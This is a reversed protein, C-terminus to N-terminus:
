KLKKMAKRALEFVRERERADLIAFVLVIATFTCWLLTVLSSSWFGLGMSAAGACFLVVALSLPLTTKLLVNMIERYERQSYVAMWKVGFMLSGGAMSALNAFLLGKLGYLPTWWYVLAVYLVMEWILSVKVKRLEKFIVLSHVFVYHIIFRVPIFGLLILPLGTLTMEKGVWLTIIFDGWLLYGGCALLSLVVSLKTVLKWWKYFDDLKSESVLRMLVPEAAGPIRQLIQTITNILKLNVALIATVGLSLLNGSFILLSNGLVVTYITGVAVDLGLKFIVKVNEAKVEAWHFKRSLGSRRSYHRIYYSKFATTSVVAIVYSWLGFGLKICSVFIVLDLLAGVIAIINVLHLRQGALMATAHVSLVYNFATIVGMACFVQTGLTSLYGELNYLVGIFPAIAGVALLIVGGQLLFVFVASSWMQAYKEEDKVRVDVLLRVCAARVGIEALRITNMLQTIVAFLAFEANSLVSLAVPIMLLQTVTVIVLSGWSSAVTKSLEQKINM